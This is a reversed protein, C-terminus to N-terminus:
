SESRQCDSFPNTTHVNNSAGQHGFPVLHPCTTRSLNCPGNELEPELTHKTNAPIMPVIGM